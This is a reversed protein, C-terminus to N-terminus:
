VNPIAEKAEAISKNIAIEIRSYLGFFDSSGTSFGLDAIMGRCADCTRARILEAEGETVSAFSRKGKPWILAKLKM